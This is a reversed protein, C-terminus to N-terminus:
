LSFHNIRLSFYCIRAKDNKKNKESKKSSGLQNATINELMDLTDESTIAELQEDPQEEEGTKRIFTAQVDTSTSNEIMEKLVDLLKKLLNMM